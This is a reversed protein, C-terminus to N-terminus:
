VVVGHEHKMHAVACFLCDDYNNENKLLFFHVKSFTWSWNGTNFLVEIVFSFSISTNWANLQESFSILYENHTNIYFMYTIDLAQTQKTKRNCPCSTSIFAIDM